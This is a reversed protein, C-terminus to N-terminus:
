EFDQPLSSIPPLVPPKLHVVSKAAGLLTGHPRIPAKRAIRSKKKVAHLTQESDHYSSVSPPPIFTLVLKPVKYLPINGFVAGTEKGACTTVELPYRRLKPSALSTFFKIEHEGDVDPKNPSRWSDANLVLPYEYNGKELLLHDIDTAKRPLASIDFPLIREIPDELRFTTHQGFFGIYHGNSAYWLRVSGDISASVVVNKEEEYFLSIVKLCHAHWCLQQKVIKPEDLPTRRFLGINWFIIYGAKNGAVIVSANADTSLSTLPTPPHNMTPLVRRILVGKINWLCLYGDEHASVLIPPCKSTSSLECIEKQDDVDDGDDKSEAGANGTDEEQKKSDDLNKDDFWIREKRLNLVTYLFMVANARLKKKEMVPATSKFVQQVTFTGFDWLVLTGNLSGTALLFHGDEKLMDLCIVERGTLPCEEEVAEPPPPAQEASDEEEEGESEEGSSSGEVPIQEPTPQNPIQCTGDPLERLVTLTCEHGKAQFIKIKGDSDLALVSHLNESAKLYVLQCFWKEREPAGKKPNFAKLEEGSGFDWLKLTGNFAGTAFHFGHFHIAATTLEVTAGHAETIEYIQDGTEIEWVKVISESCISLVQNLPRNYILVNIPRDHSRPVQKTQQIMRTLPWTDLTKSATILKLHKNDFVMGYIRRDVPGGGNDIFVQLLTLTWIDWVRFGRATSLSIVHQDVENIAVETVSFLHGTLEGVSKTFINPHWLRVVRDSGGTAIINAKVSYAFTNIGHAISLKRVPLDDELRKLSDLVLSNASDCSCSAFCNLEPYFMVKSVWDNHLKRRVRKFQGADLVVATKSHKVKLDESTITFLNVFGADDGILVDDRTAQESPHVVSVCLPCHELDKILLHDCQFKSHCKYDWIIISRETVAIVRKLQHLFDCGTIWSDEEVHVCAYQKMQGNYLALTGIESATLLADMHKLKRISQIRDRRKKGGGTADEIKERKALTFISIEEDTQSCCTAESQFYGFIESWDVHAEPNSSIKRYFDKIDQPHVNAGFLSKVENQFTDYDITDRLLTSPELTEEEKEALKQAATEKVLAQFKELNHTFSGPSLARQHMEAGPEDPEM